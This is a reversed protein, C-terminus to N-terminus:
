KNLNEMANKVQKAVEMEMLKNSAFGSILSAAISLGAGIYGITKITKFKNM